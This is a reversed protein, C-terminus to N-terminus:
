SARGEEGRRPKQQSQTSAPTIITSAPRGHLSSHTEILTSETNQTREDGRFRPGLAASRPSPTLPGQIGAQSGTFSISKQQANNECAFIARADPWAGASGLSARMARRM